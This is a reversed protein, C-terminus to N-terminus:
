YVSGISLTTPLFIYHSFIKIPKLLSVSSKLLLIMHITELIVIFHSTYILQFSVGSVEMVQIHWSQFVYCINSM